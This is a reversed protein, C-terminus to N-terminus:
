PEQVGARLKGVRLEVDDMLAKYEAMKTMVGPVLIPKPEPERKATPKPFQSM